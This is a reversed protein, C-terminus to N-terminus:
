FGGTKQPSGGSFNQPQQHGGGFSNQYVNPQQTYTTQPFSNQPPTYNTSQQQQSYPNQQYPQPITYTQGYNPQPFVAYQQQQQPQPQYGMSNNGTYIVGQNQPVYGTPMGTMSGTNTNQQIFQTTNNPNYGQNQPELNYPSSNLNIQTVQNQAQLGMEMTGNAEPQVTPLRTTDKKENSVGNSQISNDDTKKLEEAVEKKSHKIDYTIQGAKIAPHEELEKWSIRRAENIQLMKNLLDKTDEGVEKPFKLPNTKINRYLNAISTGNWPLKKFLCEYIVVGASWIDCKSTYSEDNLIQPAMYLPTGLLTHQMKVNKSAEDIMKAFGFDAIKMVGDHFLINATKIDRHMIIVKRGASNKIDLNNITNFADSFQYAIELAEEETMAGNKKLSADLDGGNCFETMLYLNNPTRKVELLQVIHEGKIQRLVDIERMFMDYNEQNELMKIAPILKIAVEKPDELGKYGKYVTAYAGKGLPKGTPRFYYDDVKKYEEM